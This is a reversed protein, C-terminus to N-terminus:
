EAFLSRLHVDHMYDYHSQLAQWEPRQTLPPPTATM